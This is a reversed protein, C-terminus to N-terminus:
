FETPLYEPRLVFLVFMMLSSAVSVPRYTGVANAHRLGVDVFDDLTADFRARLHRTDM